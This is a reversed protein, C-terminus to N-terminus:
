SENEDNGGKQQTEINTAPIYRDLIVVPSTGKALLYINKTRLSYICIQPGFQFIVEDGPLVTASRVYWQAFPTELSIHYYEDTQDNFIELGQAAWFGTFIEFERESQPRYDIAETMVMLSILAVLQLICAPGWFQGAALLLGGTVGALRYHHLNTKM